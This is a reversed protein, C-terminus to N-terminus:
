RGRRERIRGARVSNLRWASRRRVIGIAAVQGLAYVIENREAVAVPTGVYADVGHEPALQIEADLGFDSKLARSSVVRGVLYITRGEYLTADQVLDEPTVVIFDGDFVEAMAPGFGQATEFAEGAAGFTDPPEAWVDRQAVQEMVNSPPEDAAERSTADSDSGRTLFIGLVTAVVGLFAVVVGWFRYDRLFPRPDSEAM